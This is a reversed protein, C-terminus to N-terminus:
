RNNMFIEATKFQQSVLRLNENFESGLGKKEASVKFTM